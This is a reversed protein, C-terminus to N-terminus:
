GQAAEPPIPVPGAVRSTRIWALMDVWIRTVEAEPPLNWAHPLEVTLVPINKHRGGYNGLSGPYIGVPDYTLSGFRRPAPAPGDLDLVGFPAHISVILHPRFGEIQDNLWRSEPESLPSRGPFRRPDRGTVRTWYRPAERHWGPTPFNRNLDVGGANVRQPRAALLGDPNAVPVVKWHLHAADQAQMRPLWKFVISSATLEDGHIGGIVLIRRSPVAGAGAPPALERVLIPFGRRSQVGASALGSKECDVRTVGPLRGTLRKCWDGAPARDTGWAGSPLAAAVAFAALIRIPFLHLPRLLMKTIRFNRMLFVRM